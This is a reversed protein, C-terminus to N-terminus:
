LGEPDETAGYLMLEPSLKDLRGAYIWAPERHSLESLATATQAGLSRCIRDIIKQEAPSFLSADAEQAAVVRNMRYSGHDEQVVNVSGANELQKLSKEGRSPVPGHDYRIFESGTVSAGLERLATSDIFYILKWLKTAGLNQVHPNSGLHLILNKLKAPHLSMAAASLPASFHRAGHVPGTLLAV